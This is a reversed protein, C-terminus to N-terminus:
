EARRKILSKDVIGQKESINERNVTMKVNNNEM